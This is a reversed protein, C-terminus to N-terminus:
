DSVKFNIQLVLVSISFYDMKIIIRKLIIIIQYLNLKIREQSTAQSAVILGIAIQLLNQDM